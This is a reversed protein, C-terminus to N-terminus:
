YSVMVFYTGTYQGATVPGAAGAITHLTAGVRITCGTVACAVYNGYSDNTSAALQTYGSGSPGAGSTDDSEFTFTDVKFPAVAGNSLTVYNNPHNSDIIAGTSNAFSVYVNTAVDPTITYFGPQQGGTELNSPGAIGSQSAGYMLGLADSAGATLTRTGEDSLVISGDGACNAACGGVTLNGFNMAGAETVSLTGVVSASIHGLVATQDAAQAQTAGLALAAVSASIIATRKLAKLLDM